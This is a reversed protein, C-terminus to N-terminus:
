GLRRETASCDSGRTFCNALSVLNANWAVGHMGTGNRRAAIVGAVPTGHREPNLADTYAWQRGNLDFHSFDVGDDIVAVTIGAGGDSGYYRTGAGILPLFNSARSERTPGPTPNLPVGLDPGPNVPGPNVPGPNVPGPNVPGPPDVTTEGNGGGCAAVGTVLFGAMALAALLRFPSPRNKLEVM